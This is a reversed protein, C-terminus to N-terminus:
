FYCMFIAAECTRSAVCQWTIPYDLSKNLFRYHYIKKLDSQSVKFFYDAPQQAFSNILFFMFIFAFFTKNM